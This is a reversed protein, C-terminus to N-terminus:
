WLPGGQCSVRRLEFSVLFSMSLFDADYLWVSRNNVDTRLVLGEKSVASCSSLPINHFHFVLFDVGERGILVMQAGQVPVRCANANSPEM